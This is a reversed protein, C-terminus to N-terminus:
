SQYVANYTLSVNALHNLNGTLLSLARVVGKAHAMYAVPALASMLRIKKNYEPRLALMTYFQTAGQSYGIYFLDPQKTLNLIYDIAAPVDYKGM